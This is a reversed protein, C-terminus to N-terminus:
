HAKLSWEGIVGAERFRPFRKLWGRRGYYRVAVCGISRAWAGIQDLLEGQVETGANGVAVRIVCIKGRPPTCIETTALAAIHKGDRIGWIQQRGERASALVEEATMEGTTAEFRSLLPEFDPWFDRVESKSLAFLRM